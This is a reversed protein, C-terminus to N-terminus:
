NIKNRKRAEKDEGDLSHKGLALLRSGGQNEYGPLEDIYVWEEEKGKEESKDQRGAVNITEEENILIPENVQNERDADSANPDINEKNDFDNMAKVFENDYALKNKFKEKALTEQIRIEDITSFYQWLMFFDPFKVDQEYKSVRICNIRRKLPEFLIKPNYDDKGFGCLDELDYNSTMIIFWPRIKNISGGKTECPFPYSDIWQKLKSQAINVWGPELEEIVVIKQDIYGDWWKNHQKYYVNLEEYQKGTKKCYTKWFWNIASIIWNIRKSKGTGTPGYLLCNFAKFYNIDKQDFIMDAVKINDAYVKFLQKEYSLRWKGEIEDIRGKKALEYAENKSQGKVKEGKFKPMKIYDMPYQWVEKSIAEEENKAKKCYNVTANYHKKCKEIHCKPLRSQIYKFRKKDKFAVGGQLHKTGTKATEKAYILHMINTDSMAWKQIASIDEETYNNLTFAYYRSFQNM